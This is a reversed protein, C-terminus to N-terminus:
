GYSPVMVLKLLPGFLPPLDAQILVDPDVFDMCLEKALIVGVASKGSGPM